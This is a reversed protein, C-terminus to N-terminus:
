ATSADAVGTAIFTNIINCFIIICNRDLARAQKVFM